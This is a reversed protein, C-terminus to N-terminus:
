RSTLCQHSPYSRYVYGCAANALSQSPQDVPAVAPLLRFTPRACFPRSRWPLSRQASPGVQAACSVQVALFGPVLAHSVRGCLDADKGKDCQAQERDDNAPCWRRGGRPWFQPPDCSSLRFQQLAGQALQPWRGTLGLEIENAKSAVPALRDELALDQCHTLYKVFPESGIAPRDREDIMRARCVVNGEGVCGVQIRYQLM